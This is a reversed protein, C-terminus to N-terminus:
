VKMAGCPGCAIMWQGNVIPNQMRGGVGKARPGQGGGSRRPWPTVYVKSQTVSPLSIESIYYLFTLLNGRELDYECQEVVDNACNDLLTLLAISHVCASIVWVGVWKCDRLPVGHFAISPLYSLNRNECTSHLQLLLNFIALYMDNHAKFDVSNTSSSSAFFNLRGNRIHFTVM